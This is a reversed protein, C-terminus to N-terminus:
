VFFHSERSDFGTGRLLSDDAKVARGLSEVNDDGVNVSIPFLMLVYCRNLRHSKHHTLFLLGSIFYVCMCMDLVSCVCVIILMVFIVVVYSSTLFVVVVAITRTFM